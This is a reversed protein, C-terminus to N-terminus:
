LGYLIRNGFKVTQFLILNKKKKKAILTFSNLSYNQSSFDIHRQKAKTKTKTKKNEFGYIKLFWDKLLINQSKWYLRLSKFLFRYKFLKNWFGRVDVGVHQENAAWTVAFYGIKLVLNVAFPLRRYQQCISYLIDVSEFEVNTLVAKQGDRFLFM